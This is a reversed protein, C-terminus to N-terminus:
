FLFFDINGYDRPSILEHAQETRCNLLIFVQKGYQSIKVRSDGSATKLFPLVPRPQKLLTGARLMDYTELAGVIERDLAKTGKPQGRKQFHGTYRAWVANLPPWVDSFHQWDTLGATEQERKQRVVNIIYKKCRAEAALAMGQRNAEVISLERNIVRCLLDYVMDDPLSVFSYFSAASNLPKWKGQKPNRVEGRMLQVVAGWVNHPRNLLGIVYSQSAASRADCIVRVYEGLDTRTQAEPARLRGPEDPECFRQLYGRRAAMMRDFFTLRAGFPRNDYLGVLILRDSWEQGEPPAVIKCGAWLLWSADNTEEALQKSAVVRHHGCVPFLGVTRLLTTREALPM